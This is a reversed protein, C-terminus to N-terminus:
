RLHYRVQLPAAVKRTEGYAFGDFLTVSDARTWLGVMGPATRM